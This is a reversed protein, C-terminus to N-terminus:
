SDAARRRPDELCDCTWFLEHALTAVVTLGDLADRRALCPSDAQSSPLRPDVSRSLFRFKDLLPGFGHLRFRELLLIGGMPALQGCCGASAPWWLSGATWSPRSDGFCDWCCTPWGLWGAVWLM